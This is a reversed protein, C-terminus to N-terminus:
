ILTFNGIELLLDTTISSNRLKIYNSDITIINEMNKNNIIILKKNNIKFVSDSIM